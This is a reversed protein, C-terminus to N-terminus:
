FDEYKLEINKTPFVLLDYNTTVLSYVGVCFIFISVIMISIAGYSTIRIFISLDRRLCIMMMIFYLIISVYSESFAYFYASGVHLPLDVNFIWKIVALINPYLMQAM